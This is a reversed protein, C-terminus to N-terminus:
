VTKKSNGAASENLTHTKECVIVGCGTSIPTNPIMSLHATGPELMEKM